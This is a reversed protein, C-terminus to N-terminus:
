SAINTEKVEDLAVFGVYLQVLVEGIKEVDITMEQAEDQGEDVSMMVAKGHDRADKRVLVFYRGDWERERANEIWFRVIKGVEDGPASEWNAFITGTEARRKGLGANMQNLVETMLYRPHFERDAFVAFKRRPYLPLTANSLTEEWTTNGINVSPVFDGAFFVKQRLADIAGKFNLSVILLGETAVDQRDAIVLLSQNLSKCHTRHHHVIQTPTSGIFSEPVEHWM